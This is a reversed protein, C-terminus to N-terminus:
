KGRLCPDNRVLYRLYVMGNSFRRQEALNLQLQLGTPLSPKGGGISIPALYLQCEDVLGARFAEAALTPGAIVLDREERAKMQRIAEPDFESVLQTRSTSVDQLTRSFVIKDAAQWLRAYEALLPSEEAFGPDTEWVHMVEYMRRGYLHTGVPRMADNIFAHVEDSPVAWDFQGAEDEVYGDLSSLVSYILNAM